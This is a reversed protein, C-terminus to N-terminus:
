HSFPFIPFLPFIFRIYGIFGSYLGRGVVAWDALFIEEALLKQEIM